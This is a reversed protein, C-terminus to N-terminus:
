KNEPFLNLLDYVNKYAWVSCVSSKAQQNHAVLIKELGFKEAEKVCPAIQNIPRVLGTLSIEAIAIAKQPLPIQFYSSLLALAIGLDSSTEKIKFGGSVKFFIDQTSFRIQLYKELIAAILVVRKPDIGTVVRQPIGFKSDVCLTQIELLLPRNGEISCILASGPTTSADSLLQQNINAIEILGEEQMEFFGVENINGFRNKVSRLIRTQWRDEGQLYFVADVMHELVKPGAMQGDKTIHGTVLVAINNEKALRMLSFGAERLQGITGPYSHSQLSLYCNQISDLIVLAPKQQECTAIISELCAQDSFLMSTEEIGLRSARGKVQQLSEESSFYLVKHHNAINNAVQLLITSKGIGPDGTLIVFSGPLIGGGVVRDWEKVGSLMRKQTQSSIQDLNVPTIAAAKNVLQETATQPQDTKEVFSNWENCGLCCGAWKPSVYGCESCIYRTKTKQLKQGM